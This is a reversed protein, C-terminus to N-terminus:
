GRAAARRAPVKALRAKRKVKKPKDEEESRRNLLYLVLLAVAGALILFGIGGLVVWLVTGGGGKDKDETSSPAAAPTPPTAGPPPGASPQTPYGTVGGPPSPAPPDDSKKGPRDLGGTTPPPPSQDKTVKDTIGKDLEEPKFPLITTLDTALNAKKLFLLAFCTNPIVKAGPYGGGEEWEGARGQNAVLIQAGWRYWDKDAITPLDYLVAVREISWLLYLNVVPLNQPKDIPQGVHKSLAAFGALIKPDQVPKNNAGGNAALGHGVALGLLGVADMAPGEGVGGGFKYHYGWSGDANQSTQYRNAILRLTRDM